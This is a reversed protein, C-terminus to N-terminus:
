AFPTTDLTLDALAQVAHAKFYTEELPIWRAEFVAWSDAGGRATLRARQVAQACTVFVSATYHGRLSPHLSYSGEVVAFSAAPIEVASGPVGASCDFPCFRVPQGAAFPELAERLFREHHVNEGPQALREPTRLEPPLFFDDMHYLNGGYVAALLAGMHRPKGQTPGNGEMCLVADVLTLRPKVYAALDCLMDCFDATKPHMYHFEPKRTGPIVGFFNKVACTMGAMAHTKLKAFDIVADAKELWATYPFSKVTNGEPFSVECTSYDSNLQAGAAEVARMGTGTYISGVWAATFPGGPSDGVVVEAGRETLMRCLETVLAPHTAAATEPKMRAVLNAKVAIKMGPKVWDLGGLPELVAALAKRATDPEYNPCPVISVNVCM